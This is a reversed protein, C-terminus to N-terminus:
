YSADAPLNVGTWAAREDIPMQLVLRALDPEPPGIYFQYAYREMQTAERPFAAGHAMGPVNLFVLATNGIFPISRALDVRAGYSEPYFTKMSSAQQDNQVRYLDTGYEASDGARAFYILGTIAVIKSDRHPKLRYGPRRLMLRGRFTHQRLRLAKEVLGPGFLARYAATLSPLFRELLIPSLVEDILDQQFWKWTQRSREPAITTSNPDFNAKFKDAIDFRDPPPMTEMLLAYLDPPLLDTIVMHPGPEAVLVAADVRERVHSAQLVPIGM